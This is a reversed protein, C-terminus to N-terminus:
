LAICFGHQLWEGLCCCPLSTEALALIVSIAVQGRYILGSVLVKLRILHLLVYNPKLKMISFILNGVLSSDGLFM